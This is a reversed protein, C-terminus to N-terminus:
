EVAKATQEKRRKKAEKKLPRLFTLASAFFISSLLIEAGGLLASLGSDTMARVVGEAFYLLILMSAWQLTYNNARLVGALPFFLPVVKLVLLTGGPQLPALVWEWAICLAILAILSAAALFRCTKQSATLM